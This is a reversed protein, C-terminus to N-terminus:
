ETIDDIIDTKIRDFNASIEGFTAVQTGDKAATITGAATMYQATQILTLEQELAYILAGVMSDGAAAASKAEIHFPTTKIVLSDRVFIAGEEGLSVVVLEVGTSNIAKAETIIEDITSLPKGVLVEFEARNPKIAFPAAKVGRRLLEGDADLITRVDYEKALTILEAYASEGIDQPVSGSLVLLDCCPLLEALKKRFEVYAEGAPFGQENIETMTQSATDLIKLNTRTEGSKAYVFDTAIGLESLYREIHLGQEGALIGTAVSEIGFSFLLKSVNIGKGGVDGRSKSTRNTKGIEFSSLEVTKDICPNLTVTIVRM